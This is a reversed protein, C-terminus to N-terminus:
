AMQGTGRRKLQYAILLAAVSGLALAAATRAVRDPVPPPLAVIGDEDARVPFETYRGRAPRHFSIAFERFQDATNPGQIPWGHGAGVVRPRLLALRAISKEAEIWDVTFPAPPRYFEPTRLIMGYVRDQNVTTIADGALLVRDRERFLSVHGHTHGPTHIWCWEPLGPVAGDEPLAKVRDGFDYGSSPFFRGMVSIMGGVAPDKPAYDSKGTLYPLELPHAFIPVDWAKSLEMASGAHDWHGHTLIIAEPRSNTGFRREIRRRISGSFGPLGTDALV